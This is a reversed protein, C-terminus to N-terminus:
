LSFIRLCALFRNSRIFLNLYVTPYLIFISFDVSNAYTQLLHVLFSVLLIMVISLVNRIVDFIIFYLFILKVLYTCSKSMAFYQQMFYFPDPHM